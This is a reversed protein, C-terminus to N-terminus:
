GFAMLCLTHLDWYIGMWYLLTFVSITAALILVGGRVSAKPSIAIADYLEGDETKTKRKTGTNTEILIGPLPSHSGYDTPWRSHPKPTIEQLM